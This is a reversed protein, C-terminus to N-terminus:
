VLPWPYSRHDDRPAPLVEARLMAEARGVLAAEEDEALLRALSRPVGHDVLSRCAELLRSPVSEGAFEWIVTRLKPDAHFSLGHDIGWIHVSRDILVHGSKRDANNSLLDYAALERLADHHAGDEVLTFYHEEFDAEVFRQLSGAELPADLRMVTEPVLDLEFTASLEYAAIERRYLDPGFDWLPREGKGPKYVARMSVGALTVTVLYSCNSSWPLRGEIEISGCSLLELCDSRTLDPSRQPREDAPV